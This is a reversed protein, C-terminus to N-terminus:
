MKGRINKDYDQIKGIIDALNEEEKENFLYGTIISPITIYTGLLAVVGAIIEPLVELGEAKGTGIFYLAFGVILIVSIPIVVLMFSAILFIGRKRSQKDKLNIVSNEVYAVLLKTYQTNHERLNETDSNHLLADDSTVIQSAPLPPLNSEVLGKDRINGALVNEDAVERVM